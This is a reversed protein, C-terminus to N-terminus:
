GCHTENFIAVFKDGSTRIDIPKSRKGDKLYPSDHLAQSWPDHSLQFDPRIEIPHFRGLMAFRRYEERIVIRGITHITASKANLTLGTISRTRRKVRIISISFRM